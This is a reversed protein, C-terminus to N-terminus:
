QPPKRLSLALVYATLPGFSLQSAVGEDGGLDRALNRLYSGAAQFNQNALAMCVLNAQSLVNTNVFKEKQEGAKAELVRIDNAADSVGHWDGREICSQITQKLADIHNM